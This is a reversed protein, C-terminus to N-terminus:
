INGEIDIRLADTLLKGIVVDMFQSQFSSDTEILRNLYQNDDEDTNRDIYDAILSHQRTSLDTM